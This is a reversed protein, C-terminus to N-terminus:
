LCKLVFGRSFNKMNLNTKRRYAKQLFNFYLINLALNLIMGEFAMLLFLMFFFTNLYKKFIAAIYFFHEYHIYKFIINKQFTSIKKHM